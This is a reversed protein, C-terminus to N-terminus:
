GQLSSAIISQQAVRGNLFISDQYSSRTIDANNEANQYNSLALSLESDANRFESEGKGEKYRQKASNYKKLVKAKNEAFLSLSKKALEYKEAKAQKEAEVKKAYSNISDTISDTQFGTKNVETGM